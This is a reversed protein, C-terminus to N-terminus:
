IKSRPIVKSIGNKRGGIFVRRGLEDERLRFSRRLDSFRKGCGVEV